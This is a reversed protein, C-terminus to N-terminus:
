PQNQRPAKPYCPPLDRAVRFGQLANRSGSNFGISAASRAQSAYDNWSGGRATRQGCDAPIARSKELQSVPGDDRWCDSTWEWVNGHVGYLGWKNAPFSDVPVPRQRAAPGSAAESGPSTVPDGPMDFNAQQLDLEPGFWYATETGARTVYEREVSSLLRYVQGTKQSLWETYAVADFWNVRIVPNRGRGFGDDPPQYNNCGGDATCADWDDFSVAFRGVAFPKAIKVRNMAERPSRGPENAPSGAVFQGRPVVVLEPCDPCDKFWEVRGTGALLCTHRGKQRMVETCSRLRPRAEATAM